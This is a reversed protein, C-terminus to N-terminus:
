CVRTIGDETLVFVEGSLLRLEAQLKSTLELMALGSNVLGTIAELVFARDTGDQATM